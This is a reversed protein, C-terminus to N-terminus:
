NWLADEMKCINKFCETTAIVILVIFLLVWYILCERSCIFPFMSQAAIDLVCVIVAVGMCVYNVESGHLKRVVSLSIVTTLMYPVLLFLGTQIFSVSANKGSFFMLVLLLIFHFAGIIGMRAFVVSKLSFRAAMELEAMNYIGSRMNESVAIMAVFPMSATIMWIMDASVYRCIFVLATIIAISLVWTLKRIYLVQSLMFVANSMRTAKVSRLFERKRTPVPAEFAEKLAEKIYKDDFSM